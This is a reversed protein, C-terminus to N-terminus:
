KQKREKAKQKREEERAKEKAKREQEKIKLAEKRAKEKEKRAAEQAKAKEKREQEKLKQTEKRAKEKEKRADEKEKQIRKKEDAKAKEEQKKLQVLEKERKAKEKLLAKEEEAQKKLLEKQEKEKQKVSDRLAKDEEEKEKKLQKLREKDEKEQQKAYEDIANTSKGRKFLSQIGRVPDEMIENLASNVEKLKESSQNLLDEAQNGLEDVKEDMRQRELDSLTLAPPITDQAPAEQLEPKEIEKLEKLEKLNKLEKFDELDELDETEKLEESQKLKWRDVLNQNDKGFHEEFFSMYEELSKGRMLTGYNEVSIPVIVAAQELGPAYGEPGYIMHIYQIIEPFNNFGKIQLLGIGGMTTKELDFDNIIFNGFNFSAVTYLLLNDDISGQPYVILLQYPTDTETSFPLAAADESIEGEAGFHINFLSGRALLNDGSASLLLGRQFGKMMESALVSVDADPYRTILEKLQTKFGEADHTQVYSLANLFLFKPMLKSQSYKTNALNYNSRIKNVNGNLYAQYTDTYLSDQVIDMMKLNYEYDPDAMALAYESEPFESRIKLKYLNAMNMDGLKLYILYTHYYAMLKNEHVPFRNDLINFTELALGTDELKDKYIVAMNYLGDSIILNAAEIDEETVPIQQLYFQPDHPDSSTDTPEKEPLNEADPSKGPDISDTEVLDDEAFPDAMPNTKNRRRWDDELKRRGWKQQFATKGVTVVQPSYFYFLGEENTPPAVTAAKSPTMRESRMGDQQAQYDELEQKKKEEEEKKKLDAIIKNVVALREEETMKSLRLLSDQLEVAEVYVVLEDLIESRKSVRPYAEDGKKLQPLAEAYNPQAQIFKRQEFYIDGLRIQNLAKDIGQQVSEEVGLEYSAIAKATDPIALYVNGLAYYIQDLYDKNKSSKAMARLQKTIKTTDGDAYVETQRIKASFTLIYPVSAGAVEGFTKYALNKQGLNSYIQGLLYKERNKQFKDKEAHIATQLYPIAESYHKQKILYDAYITSYWDQLKKPLGDKKIKSLIDDAEYFWDMEAYCRAQWIKADVAIEPQTRYLRSIYAFSSAAQLFDGNQFQGEAMLMWANHLFPNYETRSMWEQYKPDNRKGAQKEPKTQISHTKIAKVGKEIAKDFPGGPNEKDKPLSSVPFMYVTESYNEKYGEQRAKLADKYALEGNFYVNYRTNFSHYWRTGGTNKTSTCSSLLVLLVILAISHKYKLM